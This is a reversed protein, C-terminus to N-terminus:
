IRMAWNNHGFSALADVSRGWEWGRPFRAHIKGGPFPPEAKGGISELLKRVAPVREESIVRCTIYPDMWVRVDDYQTGPAHGQCSSVTHVGAANLLRLTERFDPDPDIWGSDLAEDYGPIGADPDEM